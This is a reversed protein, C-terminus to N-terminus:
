VGLIDLVLHCIWREDTLYAQCVLVNLKSMVVIYM